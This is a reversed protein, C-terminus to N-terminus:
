AVPVDGGVWIEAGDDSATSAKAEVVRMAWAAALAGKTNFRLLNGVQWGGGWGASNMFFYAVGVNPNVPSMNATLPVNTSIVGLYEGRITGMLPSTSTIEIMWRETVAGVNTLVMPYDTFNYVGGAPGPNYASDHHLVFYDWETTNYWTTGDWANQTHFEELVAQLDGSEIVASVVAGKSYSHAVDNAFQVTGHGVSAVPNLEMNFTTLTVTAGRAHSAVITGDYGRGDTAVTLTSENQATIKLTEDGITILCPDPLVPPWGAIDEVVLSLDSANLDAALRYSGKDTIMALADKKILPVRGDLPLSKENIGPLDPHYMSKYGADMMLTEPLYPESWEGYAFGHEASYTGTADGSLDLTVDNGTCVLSKGSVATCSLRFTGPTVPDAGRTQVAFKTLTREALYMSSSVAMIDDFRTLEGEGTEYDITGIDTFSLPAAQSQKVLSLVSTLDSWLEVWVDSHFAMLYQNDDTIAPHASELTWTYGDRSSYKNVTGSVMFLGDTSVSLGYIATDAADMFATSVDAWTVGDKSWAIHKSKGACVWLSEGGGDSFKLYCTTDAWPLISYNWGTGNSAGAGYWVKGTQSVCVFRGNGSADKGFVIKSVTGFAGSTDSVQIGGTTFGDSIILLMPAPNNSGALVAVGNGFAISYVYVMSINCTSWPGAISKSYYVRSSMGFVFFEGYGTVSGYGLPITTVATGVDSTMVWSAGGNLSAYVNSYTGTTAVVLLGSPTSLISTLKKAALDTVVTEPSGILGAKVLKLVGMKNDYFDFAGDPNVV